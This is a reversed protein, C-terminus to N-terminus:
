IFVRRRYHKAANWDPFVSIFLVFAKNVSVDLINSFVAVPWINTKRKCTYCTIKKDVSDVGCKTKNNDLIIRPKKDIDSTVDKRNHLTSQIIVCRNKKPIYSVMTTNETFAFTSSFMLKGKVDLLIPSIPTKNKRITRTM